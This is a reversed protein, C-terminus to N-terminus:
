KQAPYDFSGILSYGSMYSTRVLPHHSKEEVLVGGPIGCNYRETFRVDEGLALRPNKHVEAWYSRSIRM